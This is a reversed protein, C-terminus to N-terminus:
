RAAPQHERGVAPLRDIFEVVDSERFRIQGDIEVAPLQGSRALREIRRASLGLAFSLGTPTLLNDVIM